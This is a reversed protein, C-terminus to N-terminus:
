NTHCDCNCLSLYLRLHLSSQINSQLAFVCATTSTEIGERPPDKLYNLALTQCTCCTHLGTHM